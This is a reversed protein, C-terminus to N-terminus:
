SYTEEKSEDHPFSLQPGHKKYQEEIFQEGFCLILGEEIQKKNESFREQRNRDWTESLSSAKSIKKLIEGVSREEVALASVITLNWRQNSTYSSYNPQEAFLAYDFFNLLEEQNMKLSRLWKFPLPSFIDDFPAIEAESWVKKLQEENLALAPYAMAVYTRLRDSGIARQFQQPIWRNLYYSERYVESWKQNGEKKSINLDTVCRMSWYPQSKGVSWCAKSALSWNAHDSLPVFQLIASFLDLPLKAFGCLPSFAEAKENPAFVVVQFNARHPESAIKRLHLIMQADIRQIDELSLHQRNRWRFLENINFLKKLLFPAVKESSVKLQKWDANDQLVKNYLEYTPTGKNRLFSPIENPRLPSLKKSRWLQALTLVLAGEDASLSPPRNELNTFSATRQKFNLCLAVFLRWGDFSRERAVMEGFVEKYLFTTFASSNSLEKDFLQTCLSCHPIVQSVWWLVIGEEPNTEIQHLATKKIHEKKERSEAKNYPVCCEVCWTLAVKWFIPLHGEKKSVPLLSFDEELKKQLEVCLTDPDLLKGVREYLSPDSVALRFFVIEFNKDFDRTPHTLCSRSNPAAHLIHMIRPLRRLEQLTLLPLDPIGDVWLNSSSYHSFDIEDWSYPIQEDHELEKTKVFWEWKEKLEQARGPSLLSTYPLCRLVLYPDSLLTSRLNEDNWIEELMARTEERSLKAFPISEGGKALFEEYFKKQVEASSAKLIGTQRLQYLRMLIDEDNNEWSSSVRQWFFCDEEPSSGFLSPTPYHNLLCAVVLPYKYLRDGVQTDETSLLADIFKSDQKKTYLSASKAISEVAQEIQALSLAQQELDKVFPELDRKVSPTGEFHRGLHTLYSSIRDYASM